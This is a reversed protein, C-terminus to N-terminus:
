ESEKAAILKSIVDNIRQMIYTAVFCIYGKVIVDKTERYKRMMPIIVPRGPLARDVATPFKTIRGIYKASNIDELRNGEKTIFVYLILDILNAIDKKDVKQAFEFLLEPPKVSKLNAVARYTNNMRRYLEDGNNIRRMLNTRIKTLELTEINSTDDTDAAVSNNAEVDAYYRQALTRMNQRFTNRVRNLMDALVQPTLGMSIKTRYFQYCTEVSEGIWTIMDEDKVLNWSRDLHMYTYEMIAPIPPTPFQIQFSMQYSTLGYQQRASDRLLNRSESNEVFTTTERDFSGIMDSYILVLVHIVNTPYAVISHWDSANIHKQLISKIVNKLEVTTFGFLELVDDVYRRPYIVKTTPFQKALMEANLDIFENGLDLYRKLGQKTQLVKVIPDMLRERIEILGPDNSSAEQILHSVENESLLSQEMYLM